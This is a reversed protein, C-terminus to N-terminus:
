EDAADSTYLLCAATPVRPEDRAPAGEILQDVYPFAPVVAAPPLAPVVEAAAPAPVVQANGSAGPLLAGLM